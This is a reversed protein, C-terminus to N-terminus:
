GVASLIMEANGSQLVNSYQQWAYRIIRARDAEDAESAWSRVFALAEEAPRGCVEFVLSVCVCVCVCVWVWVWVYVCVCVCVCVWVCVCVCVCVCM